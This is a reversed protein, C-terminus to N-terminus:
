FFETSLNGENQETGLSASLSCKETELSTEEGYGGGRVGRERKVGTVGRGWAYRLTLQM